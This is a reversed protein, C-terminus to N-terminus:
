GIEKVRWSLISIDCFPDKPAPKETRNKRGIKGHHSAESSALLNLQDKVVNM